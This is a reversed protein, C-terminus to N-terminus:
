DLDDHLLKTQYLHDLKKMNADVYKPSLFDEKGSSMRVVKRNM